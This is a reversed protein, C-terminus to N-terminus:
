DITKPLFVIGKGSSDLSSTLLEIKAPHWRFELIEEDELSFTEQTQQNTKKGETICSGFYFGVRFDLSVPTPSPAHDAGAWLREEEPWLGACVHVSVRPVHPNPMRGRGRSPNRVTKQPSWFEAPLFMRAEQSRCTQRDLSVPSGLRLLPGRSM